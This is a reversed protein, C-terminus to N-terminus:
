RERNFARLEVAKGGTRIVAVISKGSGIVGQNADSVGRCVVYEVGTRVVMARHANRSARGNDRRHKIHWGCSLGTRGCDFHDGVANSRFRFGDRDLLSGAAPFGASRVVLMM